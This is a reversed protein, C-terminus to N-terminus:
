RILIYELLNKTKNTQQFNNKELIKISPTNHKKVQAYISNIEPKKFIEEITKPIYKSMIGKNRYKKLLEYGIEYETQSIKRYSIIGIIKEKKNDTTTLFTKIEGTQNKQVIEQVFEYIMDKSFFYLKPKAKKYFELIEKVGKPEILKTKLTEDM